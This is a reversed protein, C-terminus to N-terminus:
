RIAESIVPQTKIKRRPWRFHALDDFVSYLVPTVLLTLLLCLTQGGIVVIAVSRRSNSGAGTGLALPIMGAVLAATTMLIPRLRDECGCYIAELRDLGGRRLAKIHDIQLISNKKVIGFLVLIGLSTFVVSFDERALLLSVLAFPVSLPLSILITVPDIFSEFQAALIMYMFAFSLVFAFLFGNAARGFEKSTGVLGTKYDTPLHLDSVTGNLIPLVNSLSQGGTLNANILIQRQRDYREIRTPGTSEVLEAVNGIPVNGLKTSPLYLKQLADPSNRFDNDVRLQVNYRDDGERYYTAQPDGGVLTRMATAISDVNVGLDAAEDRKVLVRVEPKGSEYTSDVDVVGPTARLKHMIQQAYIDMQNLDNGQIYFQLDWSQGFGQIIPPPSVAIVLGGFSKLRERALQMVAVQGQKRKKPPVLEVLITGRDVQRNIDSGVTLLLHEVGPLQALEQQVNGLVQDTGSLSSGPPLRVSVEFESQDDVPLFNKGVLFFLPVISLITVAALGVIVWRHTMSWRLLRLYGEDVRRLFAPENAKTGVAHAKFYRSCLMPTLTFSVLLSVFIAFAATFGFSSMFKGVIGAMLAVPIFIIILSLTTALVALGIERTGLIAAERPSIGKEEANRYINELVVIADDIVIGVMLVLALMTMQNLSYGMVAMLTYTSVISTPIAIAAILTSRWDRLFLFVVLAACIGGLVLHDQVAHFSDSIFTSQDRAFTVQVDPPLTPRLEAIRDKISQIVDLTNTGSQKRIELVVAPKGDFKAESRPEEYGDAVHGIDAIRILSGVRPAVDGVDESGVIIRNFDSPREVRGLTRLSLERAGEDIRGGPIEVNQSALASSVQDINLGYSYLKQGDIWVQIQRQRDGVFRVQGVGSITELNKRIKDDALKTTERPDRPSSVVVSLIPASDTALKDIVPADADKPLQSVVTSIKDRVEQAAVDPDKDLVFQVFVQSIGESSISRLEDIGSVTNVAEEVRKSVQTEVEEPSAGRLTTTVTVTPFDVKPFLDVGLHAYSAIGMVVLALILMTAFVPRNICIEALKQM